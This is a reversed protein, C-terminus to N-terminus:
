KIEENKRLFTDYFKSIFEDIAILISIQIDKKLNQM